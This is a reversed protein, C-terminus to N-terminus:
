EFRSRFRTTGALGRINSKLSYDCDESEEVFSRYMRIANTTQQGIISRASRQDIINHKHGPTGIIEGYSSYRYNQPQQVLGAEVPNRHIYKSLHLHYLEKQILISHFRGSFVPSFRKHNRNFYVAHSTQLWHIISSISDEGSQIQLHYHNPLLCYAYITWDYKSRSEALKGLFRDYDIPTIFINKRDFGRNYIHYYQHPYDSRTNRPM